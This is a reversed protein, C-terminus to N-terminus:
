NVPAVINGFIEFVAWFLLLAVVSGFLILLGSTGSSFENSWRRWEEETPEREILDVDINAAGSQNRKSIESKIAVYKEPFGEKDIAVLIEVLEESTYQSLKTKYEEIKQNM